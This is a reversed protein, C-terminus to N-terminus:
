INNSKGFLMSWIHIKENHEEVKERKQKKRVDKMDKMDKMDKWTKHEFMAELATGELKIRM